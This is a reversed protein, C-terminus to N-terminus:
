RKQRWDPYVLLAASGTLVSHRVKNPRMTAGSPGWSGDPNQQRVLDDLATQLRNHLPEGLLYLTVVLEAVLDRNNQASAWNVADLLVEVVASRRTVLWASLPLHGFDTLAVLEHVLAYLLWTTTRRQNPKADAGPLAIYHRNQSIREILSSALLSETDTRTQDDLRSLFLATTLRVSPNDLRSTALARRAQEKIVATLPNTLGSLETLHAALVLHYHEMLSKHPRRVWEQFEALDYLSAMQDRFLQAFRERQSVTRSHDRFFRFAVGEDIMDDFGGAQVTARNDEIWDLGRFFAAEIASNSISATEPKSEQASCYTAPILLLVLFFGFRSLLIALQSLTHIRQMKFLIHSLIKRCQSSFLWVTQGNANNAVLKGDSTIRGNVM